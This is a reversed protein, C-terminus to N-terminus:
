GHSPMTRLHRAADAHHVWPCITSVPAVSCDEGRRAVGIRLVEEGGLGLCAAGKDLRRRRDHQGAARDLYPKGILAPTSRRVM